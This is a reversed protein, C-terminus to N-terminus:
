LQQRLSKERQTSPPAEVQQNYLILPLNVHSQVELNLWALVVLSYPCSKRVRSCTIAGVKTYAALGQPNWTILLCKFLPLSATAHHHGIIRSSEATFLLYSFQTFSIIVSTFSQLVLELLPFVRAKRCASSGWALQVQEQTKSYSPTRLFCQLCAFVPSLFIPWTWVYKLFCVLESNSTTILM